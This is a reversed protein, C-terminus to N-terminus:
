GYVYVRNSVPWICVYNFLYWGLRNTYRYFIKSFWQECAEKPDTPEESWHGISQPDEHFPLWLKFDSPQIKRYLLRKSEEGNLLYDMKPYKQSNSRTVSEWSGSKPFVRMSRWSMNFPSKRHYHIRM